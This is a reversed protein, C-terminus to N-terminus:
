MLILFEQTIPRDKNSLSSCVLNSSIDYSAFVERKKFVEHFLKM